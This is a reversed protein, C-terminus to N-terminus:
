APAEVGALFELVVRNLEEANEVNVGHPAREIVTLKAGPIAEAIQVSKWVPVLIDFEAGIVHVPVSLSGLRDLTEHRSAADLQRAFADPAQPHPNALTMERVYQVFDPKEAYLEQSLTLLLLNDVHEEHPTRQAAAGWIRGREAGWPGSEAFTVVLTLTRIRDPAALAAEQAIAGGMSMGLLHFSDLGLEDALALTDQAMDAIEYPGDAYSSQGVDRNDFEIVRHHKSWEPVQTAWALHDASLGMVIVLPEGEGHSEYYLRQGNAEAFPM